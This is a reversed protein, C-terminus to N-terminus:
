RIRLLKAIKDGKPMMELDEKSLVRLAVILVVYVVVGVLIGGATAMANKLFSGSLFRALLGQCGWAAAAMIISAILPKFFVVTLRPPHPVMRKIVLLNLVSVVVFCTLTGIPAGYIMFKPNGVLTYSVIVKSVGGIVMTIIPLSVISNAQLISTAVVQICVFISAIGLISLLPGAISTDVNNVTLLEIIPGGLALLGFGCPMAVLASIRLASETTRRAGLRDRRAICASVGPVICATFPVMLNFPLNYVSMTKSYIGYLTRASDLVPDLTTNPNVLVDAQWSAMNEQFLAEAKPFIGLVSNSVGTLGDGMASFVSQLQSQVLGTDILNVVSLTCSALSIPIALKLMRLLITSSKDPRDTAVVKERRKTRIHNVVLYCLSLIAGISVGVLAGAAALRDRTDEPQIASNLILMALALGLVMKCLAEIVQSVGTPVMNLHGQAYGRFASCCTCLVAPSLALVAFVAKENQLVYKAVIPSFLSMCLFSISGMVLFAALAVRFVREKQNHLGLANCESVTKSLAVPLGATSITLFVTYINYAANFDGYAEDPLLATLPIKYIAGIIKVLITTM